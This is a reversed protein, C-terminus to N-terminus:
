AFNRFISPLGRSWDCLEQVTWLTGQFSREVAYVNWGLQELSVKRCSIKKKSSWLIASCHGTISVLPPRSQVKAQPLLYVSPPASATLSKEWEVWGEKWENVNLLFCGSWIKTIQEEMTSGVNCAANFFHSMFIRSPTKNQVCKWGRGSKLTTWTFCQTKGQSIAYLRTDRM